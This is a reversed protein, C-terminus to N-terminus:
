LEQPIELLLELAQFMLDPQLPLRDVKICSAHLRSRFADTLNAFESPTKCGSAIILPETNKNATVLFNELHILDNSSLKLLDDITLTIQGLDKIDASSFISRNIEFYPVCAWRESIEHVCSTVKRILSPNAGELYVLSTELSKLPAPKFFENEKSEKIPIVNSIDTMSGMGINKQTSKIDLYFRYFTPELIMKILHTINARDDDSLAGVDKVIAMAFFHEGQMIPIRLDGEVTSPSQSNASWESADSMFNLTLGKGYRNQLLGQLRVMQTSNMVESIM